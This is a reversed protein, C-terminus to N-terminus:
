KTAQFNGARKIPETTMVYVAACFQETNNRPALASVFLAMEQVTM